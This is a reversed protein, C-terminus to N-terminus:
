PPGSEHKTSDLHSTYHVFHYQFMKKESNKPKRSDNDNWRPEGYEYMMHPIFLLGMPTQLESVYDWWISMFYM